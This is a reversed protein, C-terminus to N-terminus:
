TLPRAPIEQFVPATADPRTPQASTDTGEWPRRLCGYALKLLRIVVGRITFAFFGTFLVLLLSSFPTFDGPFALRHYWCVCLIVFVTVGLVVVSWDGNESNGGCVIWLLAAALPSAGSHDGYEWTSESRWQCLFPAFFSCTKLGGANSCGGPGNGRVNPPRNSLVAHLTVGTANDADASSTACSGAAAARAPVRLHSALSDNEALERGLFIVRVSLGRAIEQAFVSNKVEGITSNVDLLSETFTVPEGTCNVVWKVRVKEGAM